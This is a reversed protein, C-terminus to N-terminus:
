HGADKGGIKFTDAWIKTAELQKQLMSHKEYGDSVGKRYMVIALLIAGISIAIYGYIM